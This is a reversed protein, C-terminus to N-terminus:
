FEVATRDVVFGSVGESFDTLDSTHTAMQLDIGATGFWGRTRWTGLLPKWSPKGWPSHPEATRYNGLHGKKGKGFPLTVNGKKWDSLTERITVVESHHSLVAEYHCLGAREACKAAEWQLVIEMVEPHWDATGFGVAINQLHKTWYLDKLCNRNRSGVSRFM